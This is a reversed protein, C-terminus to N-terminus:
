GPPSAWHPSLSTDVRLHGDLLELARARLPPRTLVGGDHIGQEVALELLVAQSLRHQRAQHSLQDALVAPLYVTV